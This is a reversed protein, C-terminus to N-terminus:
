SEPREASLTSPPLVAVEYLSPWAGDDAAALEIRLVRVSRAEFEGKLETRDAEQSPGTRDVLSHWQGDPGAGKVRYRPSADGATGYVVVGGVAMERDLDVEVWPDEAWAPPTWHRLPDVLGDFLFDAAPVSWPGSARARRGRALHSVGDVRVLSVLEEEGQPSGAESFSRVRFTTTERVVVPGEYRPSDTGPEQGSVSYRIPDGKRDRHVSVMVSDLFRIPGGSSAAHEPLGGTVRIDLPRREFFRLWPFGRVRGAPDAVQIRVPTSAALRVVGPGRGELNGPDSGDLTVLVRDGPIRPETELVVGTAFRDRRNLEPGEYDPDMRGRVETRAPRLRNMVIGDAVDVRRSLGVGVEGSWLSEAVRPLRKRLAPLALFGELGLVSLAGGDVEAVRPLEFPNRSPYGADWHQWRLPSWGDLELPTSRRDATVDLPVPSANVVMRRDALAETLEQPGLGRAVIGLDAPLQVVGDPPLDWLLPRRGRKSVMRAVRATFYRQLEALSELGKAQMFDATEPDSAFGRLDVDRGGIHIFPAGTFIQAVDGVISDIAEYTGERAIHVTRPNASGDGLAFLGPDSSVLARSGGPLGIEPILTVGRDAAFNELAELDSRGYVRWPRGTDLASMPFAVAEDSTLRLQVHNIKYFRAFEVLEKLQELGYPRSAIDLVIARFPYAPSDSIRVRPVLVAGAEYASIQLLTAVGWSVAAPSGGSIEVAGTVDLRYEERALGPELAVVVEGDRAELRRTSTAFGVDM